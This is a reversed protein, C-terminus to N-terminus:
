VTLVGVFASSRIQIYRQGYATSLFYDDEDSRDKAVAGRTVSVGGASKSTIPGVNASTQGAELAEGSVLFHATLYYQAYDYKGNWFNEDTGMTLETDGIYMEITADPYEVSDAFQPFRARFQETTISM